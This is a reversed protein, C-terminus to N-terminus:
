YNLHLSVLEVLDSASPAVNSILCTSQRMRIPVVFCFRANAGLNGRRLPQTQIICVMHKPFIRDLVMHYNTRSHYIM